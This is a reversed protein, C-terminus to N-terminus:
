FGSRQDRKKKSPTSLHCLVLTSHGVHSKYIKEKKQRGKDQHPRDGEIEPRSTMM